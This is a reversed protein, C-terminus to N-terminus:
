LAPTDSRCTLLTQSAAKGLARVSLGTSPRSLVVTSTPVSLVRTHMLILSPLDDVNLSRTHTQWASHYQGLPYTTLYQPRVFVELLQM